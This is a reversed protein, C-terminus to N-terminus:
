TYQIIAGDLEDGGVRVSQSTVVGGLSIMAVETTGGGIDVIMNGTPEHVATLVSPPAIAEIIRAAKCAGAFRCRGARSSSAPSAGLCLHDHPKSFRSGHM